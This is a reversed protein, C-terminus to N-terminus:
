HDYAIKTNQPHFWNSEIKRFTLFEWVFIGHCSTILVSGRKFSSDNQRFWKEKKETHSIFLTTSHRKGVMKICILEGSNLILHYNDLALYMLVTSLVHILFINIMQHSLWVVTFSLTRIVPTCQHTEIFRSRDDIWWVISTCQIFSRARADCILDVFVITVASFTNVVRLTFIM